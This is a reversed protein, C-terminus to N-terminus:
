KYSENKRLLIKKEIKFADQLRGKFVVIGNRRCFHVYKKVELLVFDIIKVVNNGFLLQENPVSM